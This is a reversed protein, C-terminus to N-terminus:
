VVHLVDHVSSGGLWLRKEAPQVNDLAWTALCERNNLRPWLEIM